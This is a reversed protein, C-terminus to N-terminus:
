PTILEEAALREHPALEIVLIHKREVAYGVVCKLQRNTHDDRPHRFAVQTMVNCVEPCLADQSVIGEHFRHVM